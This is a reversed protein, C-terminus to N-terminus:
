AREFCLVTCVTGKGEVRRMTTSKRTGLDCSLVVHTALDTEWKGPVTIALAYLRDSVAIDILQLQPGDVATVAIESALPNADFLQASASKHVDQLVQLWVEPETSQEPSPPPRFTSLQQCAVSLLHPAHQLFSVPDSHALTAYDAPTKGNVRIPFSNPSMSKCFSSPGFAFASTCRSKHLFSLLALCLQYSVSPLTQVAKALAKHVNSRGCLPYDLYHRM